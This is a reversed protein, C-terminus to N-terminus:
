PERAQILSQRTLSLSPRLLRMPSRKRRAGCAGEALLGRLSMSMQDCAMSSPQVDISALHRFGKLM